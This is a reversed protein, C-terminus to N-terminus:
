LEAIVCEPAAEVLRMGLLEGLTGKLSENIVAGKDMIERRKADDKAAARIVIVEPTIAVRTSPDCHPRWSTRDHQKTRREDDVSDRRNKATENEQGSGARERLEQADRRGREEGSDASTEQQIGRPEEPGGPPPGDRVGRRPRRDGQIEAPDDTADGEDLDADEARDAGAEHGQDGRDHQHERHQLEDADSLHRTRRSRATM